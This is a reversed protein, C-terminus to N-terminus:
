PILDIAGMNGGQDDSEEDIFHPSDYKSPLTNWTNSSFCM